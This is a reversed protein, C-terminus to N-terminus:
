LRARHNGVEYGGAVPEAGGRLCQGTTAVAVPEPTISRVYCLQSGDPSLAPATLMVNTIEELVRLEQRNGVVMLRYCHPGALGPNGEGEYPEMTVFALSQGDPSFAMPSETCALVHWLLIGSAALM